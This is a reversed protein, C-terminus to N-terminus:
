VYNYKGLLDYESIFSGAMCALVNSNSDMAQLGWAACLMWSQNEHCGERFAHNLLGTADDVTVLTHGECDGSRLKMVATDLMSACKKTYSASWGSRLFQDNGLDSLLPLLAIRRRVISAVGEQGLGNQTAQLVARSTELDSKSRGKAVIANVVRAVWEIHASFITAFFDSRYQRLEILGKGCTPNSHFGSAKLMRKEMNRIVAEEEELVKFPASLSTGKPDMVPVIVSSLKDQLSVDYALKTKGSGPAQTCGIISNKGRATFSSSPSGLLDVATKAFTSTDSGVRDSLHMCVQPKSDNDVGIIPFPAALDPLEFRERQNELNLFVDESEIIQDALKDALSLTEDSPTCERFAEM